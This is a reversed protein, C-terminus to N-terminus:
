TGCLSARLVPLSLRLSTNSNMALLSSLRSSFFYKGHGTSTSVKALITGPLSALVAASAAELDAANASIATAAAASHLDATATVSFSVASWFFGAPLFDDAPVSLVAHLMLVEGESVVAPLAVFNGV